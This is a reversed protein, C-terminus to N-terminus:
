ASDNAHRVTYCPHVFISATLPMRRIFAPSLNGQCPTKQKIYLIDNNEQPAHPIKKNNCNSQAM